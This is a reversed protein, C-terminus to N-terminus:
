HRAGQVPGALHRERLQRAALKGLQAFNPASTLQLLSVSTGFTQRWWNRVEITMLSDMGISALSFGHIASDVDSHAEEDRMLFSRVRRFIQSALFEVCSPSDLQTPDRSVHSIFDDLAAASGTVSPSQDEQLSGWAHGKQDDYLAMRADGKWLVSTNPHDLPLMSSFGVAVQAESTYRFIASHPPNSTGSVKADHLTIRTTSRAIALQIGDLFDQESLLRVGTKRMAELKEPQRSMIGVDEVVGIDMVSCALGLSRRYQAFADLFSNAAAYNAQGPNGTIGIISGALVFFDLDPAHITLARHLNWTGSVKPDIVTRWAHLNLDKTETDLLIGALHIVGAIRHTKTIASITTQVSGEEVVDLELTIVTCGNGRLECILPEDRKHGQPSRMSRSLFFITRAGCCVMWRAIPASLGQLGGILVYADTPTFKANPTSVSAANRVHTDIPLPQQGGTHGAIDVVIKGINTGTYLSRMAETVSQHSITRLPELHRITHNNYLQVVQRLLTSVERPNHVALHAMDVAVFARNEDLPEMALKSRGVIDRKGLEVFTGCPAVCQWSAHLLYGSLSNLVVDVGRNGTAALIDHVFSDDRSHFIHDRPIAFEQQLFRVKEESGVTAYVDAGLWRAVQIAAIGVGGAASHILITQHRKLNAKDILARLVTIYVCPMSAAHTFPLSDPIPVCLYQHVLVSVALCGADPAFLMVRDGRKVESVCAGTATVIGAAECGLRGWHARTSEIGMSMLVDKFNLGAAEIKVEVMGPGPETNELVPDPSQVWVLSDLQGPNGIQLYRHKTSTGALHQSAALSKSVSTWSFRPVVIGGAKSAYAFERDPDLGASPSYARSSSILKELVMAAAEMAQDCTSDLELTVFNLGTEKRVSRAFGLIQAFIPDVPDVQCAGTLWLLTSESQQLGNLLELLVDLRAQSVNALFSGSPSIDLLSVVHGPKIGASNGPQLQHRTSKFGRQHVFRELIEITRLSTHDLDDHLLTISVLSSEASGMQPVEPRAIMTANIQYPKDADLALTDLPKFSAQRLREDWVQHDLYPEQVRGDSAGLWWGSLFGMILNIWKFDCALEQLLLRGNPKLLSRVHRLTKTLDETAHLVNSAIVLDYEASFGQTLPDLSIDLVRYEMGRVKQFRAKASPFFGSSIDTFVYSGDWQADSGTERPRLHELVRATLGGTGAGVEIIRLHKGYKHALLEFFGEYSWLSNMWDYLRHLANDELFLELPSVTGNFIERANSACRSLLEAAASGPSNKLAEMLKQKEKHIDEKTLNVQDEHGHPHEELWHALKCLHARNPDNLIGAPAMLASTRVEAACITFLADILKQVNEHEPGSRPILLQTERMFDIDPKWVLQMAGHSQEHHSIPGSEELIIPDFQLGKITAVPRSELSALDDTPCSMSRAVMSGRCSGNGKSGTVVAHVDLLSKDQSELPASGVSFEEIWTPLSVQRLLRPQGRHNAVILSQIIKDLMTPHFTYSNSTITSPIVRSDHSLRLKASKCVVNAIINQMGRFATGYNYGIRAMARYWSAADVERVFGDRQEPLEMDLLSSRLINSDTTPKVLGTCHMTWTGDHYSSFSIEWVNSASDPHVQSRASTVVEVTAGANLVLAKKLSLEKVMYARVGTLQFSAEGAMAIFGAAPFVIDSGIRHHKIWPIKDVSLNSRWMPSTGSDDFNRVGLLEHPPFQRLRWTKAARSTPWYHKSLDWPYPELDVLPKLNGIPHIPVGHSHLEGLAVLFTITASQGCVLTPVYTPRLGAEAYAQELHEAASSDPGIILQISGPAKVLLEKVEQSFDVASPERLSHHDSDTYLPKAFNQGLAAPGTPLAAEIKRTDMKLADQPSSLHNKPLSKSTHLALCIAAEVSLLGSAHDAAVKGSSCGAVVDPRVGYRGLLRTLAIQIATLVTSGIESEGLRSREATKVMEARVTWSPKAVPPLQQLADDMLKIDYAFSKDFRLLEVGIRAWQQGPGSFIFAIPVSLAPRSRIHSGLPSSSKVSCVRRSEDFVCYNKYPLKIRMRNVAHALRELRQPQKKCYAKHLEMSRALAAQSAASFLIITPKAKAKSLVAAEDHEAQFTNSSPEQPRLSSASDLIIYVNTGGIGFSSIGIRELRDTPWPMPTTPVTLNGANFPIQSNPDEFKINPLIVRNELSVIAKIVSTLASAAESHGLSPKVSGILVGHQGFIKAVAYTEVADGVPTGTGHCEVMATKVMDQDSIGGQRYAARMLAEQAESSPTSMGATRGNANVASGRIVARIPNGDAVALSQRKLILCNVAEARAYGSAKADFTRCSADPSLVGHEALFVALDPSFILNSGAVVATDCEGAKIAQCALHLALGGAACAARVTMVRNSLSFDGYGALRYQPIDLSDRTHMERWDDGFSGVYCGIRDAKAKDMRWQTECASEMAEWVVRLLIRQQPDMKEVEPQSMVLGIASFPSPDWGTIEEWSLWYGESPLTHTHGDSGSYKFSDYEYRKTDPLGRADGGSLLFDFLASPTNIGGPLRLGLGCIAVATDNQTSSEAM